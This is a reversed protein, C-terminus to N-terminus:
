QNFKKGNEIVIGKYDEGVLQGSLNYRKGTSVAKKASVSSIGTPDSFVFTLAKAGGSTDLIVAGSAPTGSYPYFGVGENGFGLRYKDLVESTTWALLNTGEYANVTAKTLTMKHNDASSTTKLIVPTGSPVGGALPTLTVSGANNATAVYATTNADLTYGNSADYFARWGAMNDSTTLTIDDTAPTWSLSKTYIQASFAVFVYGGNAIDVSFSCDDATNAVTGKQTASGITSSTGQLIIYNGSKSATNGGVFSLKGSKTINLCFYRGTFAPSTGGSKGNPKLYGNSSDYGDSGGAVYTITSTEDTAKLTNSTNETIEGAATQAASSSFDWTVTTGAVAQPDAPGSRKVGYVELFCGFQNGTPSITVAEGYNASVAFEKTLIYSSRDTEGALWTASEPNGRSVAVTAATGDLWTRGVIKISTIKIDENPQLTYVTGADMKHGHMGPFINNSWQFDGEPKSLTFNGDTSTWVSGSNAGSHSGTSILFGDASSQDVYCDYKVLDSYNEGVKAVARVTCSNTLNFPASYEKGNTSSPETGDITYYVEGSGTYTITVAPDGFSIEPTFVNVVTITAVNSDTNGSGDTVKCYYYGGETPTYSASNTGKEVPNDKDTNDCKYWQYSLDGSSATASVTLAAIADGSEYSASVPQSTITPAGIVGARNLGMMYAYKANSSGVIQIVYTKTPDLDSISVLKDQETTTANNAKTYTNYAHNENDNILWANITVGAGAALLSGGTCGTVKVAVMRTEATLKSATNKNAAVSKNGSEAAQFYETYAPFPSTEEWSGDGANGGANEQVAFTPKTTGYGVTRALIEVPIMFYDSTLDYAKKLNSIDGGRTIWTIGSLTTSLSTNSNSVDLTSTPQAYTPTSDAAWTGSCVGLLLTLLTFLKRM